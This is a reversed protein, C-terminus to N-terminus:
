SELIIAPAPDSTWNRQVDMGSRRLDGKVMIALNGVNLTLGNPHNSWSPALAFCLKRNAPEVILRRSTRNSVVKWGRGSLKFGRAGM